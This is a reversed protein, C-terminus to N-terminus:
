STTPYPPNTPTNGRTFSTTLIIISTPNLPQFSTYFPHSILDNHTENSVIVVNLVFNGDPVGNRESQEEMRMNIPSRELYERM